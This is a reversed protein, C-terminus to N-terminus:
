ENDDISINSVMEKLGKEIEKMDNNIVKLQNLGEDFNETSESNYVKIDKKSSYNNILTEIEKSIDTKNRQITQMNEASQNRQYFNKNKESKQITNVDPTIASTVGKSLYNNKPKELSFSQNYKKNKPMSYSANHNSNKLYDFTYKKKIKNKSPINKKEKILRILEQKFEIQKKRLKLEHFDEKSKIFDTEKKDVFNIYNILLEQCLKSNSFDGNLNKEHIAIQKLIRKKKQILAQKRNKMDIMEKKFENKKEELEKTKILLSKTIPLLLKVIINDINNSINLQGNKQNM